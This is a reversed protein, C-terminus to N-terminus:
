LIIVDPPPFEGDSIALWRSIRGAEALLYWYSCMALERSIQKAPLQAPHSPIPLSSIAIYVYDQTNIQGATPRGDRASWLTDSGGWFPGTGWVKNARHLFIIACKIELLGYRDAPTYIYVEGSWTIHTFSGFEAPFQFRLKEYIGLMLFHICVCM